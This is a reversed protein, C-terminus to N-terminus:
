RPRRSAGRRAVAGVARARRGGGAAEQGRGGRTPTCSAWSKPADVRFLRQEFGRGLGHGAAAARESRGAGARGPPDGAGRRAGDRRAAAAHDPHAPSAFYIAATAPQPAEGTEENVRPYGPVALWEASLWAPMFFGISPSRALELAVDDKPKLVSWWATRGTSARARSRAAPTRSARIRAAPLPVTIDGLHVFNCPEKGEGMDLKWLQSAGDVHVLVVDGGPSFRFSPRRGTEELTGGM